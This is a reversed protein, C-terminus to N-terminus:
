SALNNRKQRQGEQADDERLGPDISSIFNFLLKSVFVISLSFTKKRRMAPQAVEKKTQGFFRLLSFAGKTKPADECARANLFNYRKTKTEM